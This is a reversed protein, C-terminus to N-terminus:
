YGKALRELQERSISIINHKKFVEIDHIKQRGLMDRIMETITM